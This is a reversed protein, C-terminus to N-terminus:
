ATRTRRRRPAEVPTTTDTAKEVLRCFACVGSPTPAGCSTCPALGARDPESEVRFHELGRALFGTYFAAKAGPSTAEIDNLAAKYGLHKNGEAM